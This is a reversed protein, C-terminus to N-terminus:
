CSLRSDTPSLYSVQGSGCYSCPWLCCPYFTFRCKFLFPSSHDSLCLCVQDRNAYLCCHSRCLCSLEPLWLPQSCGSEQLYSSIRYCWVPGPISVLWSYDGFFFICIGLESHSTSQKTQANLKTRISCADSGSYVMCTDGIKINGHEAHQTFRYGTRLKAITKSTSYM